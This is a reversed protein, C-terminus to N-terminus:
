KEGNIEDLIHVNNPTRIERAVLKGSDYTKIKFEQSNFTLTHGQDCMQSIVLINHKLKKVCIVKEVNANGNDLNLTGKGIIKSSGNDKFTVNGENKKLIIFHTIYGTM